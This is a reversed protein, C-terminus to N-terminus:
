ELDHHHFGFGCRWRWSWCTTGRKVGGGDGEVAEFEANDVWAQACLDMADDIIPRARRRPHTRTWSYCPAHWRHQTTDRGDVAETAKPWEVAEMVEPPFLRPGCGERRAAEDGRKAGDRQRQRRM